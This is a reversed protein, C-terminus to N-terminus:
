WWGCLTFLLLDVIGPEVVEEVVEEMVLGMTAAGGFTGHQHPSSQEQQMM